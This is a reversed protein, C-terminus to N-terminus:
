KGSDEPFKRDYIKVAKSILLYCVFILVPWSILHLIQTIYNM